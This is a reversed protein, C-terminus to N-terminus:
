KFELQIMKEILKMQEYNGKCDKGFVKINQTLKNLEENGCSLDTLGSPYAQECQYQPRTDFKNNLYHVHIEQKQFIKLHDFFLKNRM